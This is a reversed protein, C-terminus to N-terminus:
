DKQWADIIERYIINMKESFMRGSFKGKVTEKVKLSDFNPYNNLMSEIGQVIERVAPQQIIIGNDATIVSAAIGTNTSMVPLGCSLAEIIVTGFTEYRSTQVLFSASSYLGALEPGQKLGTFQVKDGALGLGGAYAKLDEHDPGEGILMVDFDDRRKYLESIADLFGTINKSKDEFCSVHIIIARTSKQVAASPDIASTDVVNPVVFTRKHLLGCNSMAVKLPDSVTILASSNKLLMRTLLKRFRGKYTGNEPYYRSWHESILYPKGQKRAMYWTFFIERTLIHGHVLDVTFPMQWTYALHHAKVYRFFSVAKAFPKFGSGPKFYVRCVNVKKEVSNVMEFSRSCGPDPHVSIVLIENTLALAEAQRQIFLGPM